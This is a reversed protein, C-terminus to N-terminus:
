PAVALICPLALGTRTCEKEEVLEEWGCKSLEEYSSLSALVKPLVLDGRQGVVSPLRIGQQQLGIEPSLSM